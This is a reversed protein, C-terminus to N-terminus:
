EANFQSLQRYPSACIVLRNVFGQKRQTIGIKTAKLKDISDVWYGTKLGFTYEGSWRPNTTLASHEDKANVVFSTYIWENPIPNDKREVLYLNM